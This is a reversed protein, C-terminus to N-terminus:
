RSRGHKQSFNRPSSCWHTRTCPLPLPAAIITPPHQRGNRVGRASESALNAAARKEFKFLLRPQSMMSIEVAPSGHCGKGAQPETASPNRGDTVSTAKDHHDDGHDHDDHIMIGAASALQVQNFKFNFKRTLNLNVRFGPTRRGPTAAASVWHKLNLNTFKYEVQLKGGDPPWKKCHLSEPQAAPVTVTAHWHRIM